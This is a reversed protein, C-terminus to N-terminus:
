REPSVLIDLLTLKQTLMSVLKLFKKLVQIEICRAGSSKIELINQRLLEVSFKLSRKRETRRHYIFCWDEMKIHSSAYFHERDGSLYLHGGLRRFDTATICGGCYYWPWVNGHEFCTNFPLRDTEIAYTEEDKSLSMALMSSSPPFNVGKIYNSRDLRELGHKLFTENHNEYFYLLTYYLLNKDFEIQKSKVVARAFQLELDIPSSLHQLFVQYASMIAQFVDIEGTIKINQLLKGSSHIPHGDIIDTRPYWESVKNGCPGCLYLTFIDLFKEFNNDTEDFLLPRSKQVVAKYKKKIEKESHKLFEKYSRVYPRSFTKFM